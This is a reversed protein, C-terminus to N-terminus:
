TTNGPKTARSQRIWFSIRKTQMALLFERASDVQQQRHDETLMRPICRACVKRYQFKDTLIRYITTRSVEPVLIYLEDLSVRRDKRMSVEVKTITEKCPSPIGSLKEDHIETRGFTLEQNWKRIHKFDM